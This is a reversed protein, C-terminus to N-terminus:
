DIVEGHQRLEKITKAVVGSNPSALVNFPGPHFTLRLRHARVKLGIANLRERILSYDPLSTLEYESMWPFMDSSMRYLSMQNAINWDIIRELDTVNCLALESAYSIGKELFTKRMMSRNVQVNEEALATNICAYGVRMASYVVLSVILNEGVSVKRM